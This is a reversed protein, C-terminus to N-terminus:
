QFRNMNSLCLAFFLNACNKESVTYNLAEKTVDSNALKQLFKHFPLSDQIKKTQTVSILMVVEGCSLDAAITIDTILQVYQLQM